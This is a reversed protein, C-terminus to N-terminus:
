KEIPLGAQEWAQIGGDLHYLTQLGEKQLVPLAQESRRGSACHVLYPTAKNLAAVKQEFDAAHFDINIAGAIHGSAFEDPTRVDLVTTNKEAVLKQAEAANVHQTSSAPSTEVTASENKAHCGSFTILLAIAAVSVSFDRRRNPTNSLHSM